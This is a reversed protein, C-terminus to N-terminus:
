LLIRTTQSKFENWKKGSTGQAISSLISIYNFENLSPEWPQPNLETTSRKGLLCLARPETGLESFFFLCFFFIFSQTGMIRCCNHNEM